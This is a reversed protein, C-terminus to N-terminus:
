EKTELNKELWDLTEKVSGIADAEEDPITVGFAEEVELLVEVRDFEDFGLADWTTSITVPKQLSELQAALKEKPANTEEMEKKVDEIRDKLHKSVADLLTEETKGSAAASFCRQQVAAPTTTIDNKSLLSLGASTAQFSRGVAVNKALSHLSGATARGAVAAALGSTAGGRSSSTSLRRSLTAFTTASRRFTM